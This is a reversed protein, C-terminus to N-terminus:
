GLSCFSAPFHLRILETLLRSSQKRHQGGTSHQASLHSSALPSKQGTHISWGLQCQQTERLGKSQQGGYFIGLNKAIILFFFTKLLMECDERLLHFLSWGNKLIINEMNIGTQKSFLADRIKYHCDLPFQTKIHFVTVKSSHRPPWPNEDQTRPLGLNGLFHRSGKKSPPSLHPPPTVPEGMKTEILDAQIQKIHHHKTLIKNSFLVSAKLFAPFWQELECKLTLLSTLDHLKLTRIGWCWMSAEWLWGNNM